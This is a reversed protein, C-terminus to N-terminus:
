KYIVELYQRAHGVLSLFGWSQGLYRLAGGSGACTMISVCCCSVCGSMWKDLVVVTMMMISEDSDDEDAAM